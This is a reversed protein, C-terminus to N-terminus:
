ATFEKFRKRPAGCVPCREPVDDELTTFGCVPCVLAKDQAIDEGDSFARLASEYLISHYKEVEFAFSMARIGQEEDQLEAVVIYAPYMQEVEFDEGGKAAILNESTTGVGGLVLLHNTAHIREAHAIARFMNAINPREDKDAQDAFILYKTHAQSEGAFAAELNTKTMKNM